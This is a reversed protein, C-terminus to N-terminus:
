PAPTTVLLWAAATPRIRHDYGGLVLVSGDELLTATAFSRGADLAGDLARFGGAVGPQWLEARAPGGAVLVAGSPLVVAADVIKYRAANLEPGPSFRGTPPDFVETRRYLEHGGREDSGAIILVRGDSLRVSGHKHRSDIMDGAPQFRDTTPDYIETSAL